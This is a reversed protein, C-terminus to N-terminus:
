PYFTRKTINENHNRAFEDIGLSYYHQLPGFLAVDMPQLLHTTHAPICFLEIMHDDCYQIFETSFHSNHGDVILLRWEDPQCKKKTIPDFLRRLYQVGLIQNTWGSKSIAFFTDDDSKELSEFWEYRHGQTGQFIIYSPLATGDACAGDILTVTERKADALELNNYEILIHSSDVM